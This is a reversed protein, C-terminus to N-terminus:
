RRQHPNSQKLRPLKERKQALWTALDKPHGDSEKPVSFGLDEWAAALFEAFQGTRARSPEVRQYHWYLDVMLEVFHRALPDSRSPPSKVIKLQQVSAGWERIDRVSEIFRVFSAASSPLIDSGEREIGPIFAAPDAEDPKDSIWRTIRSIKAATAQLRKAKRRARRVEELAYNARTRATRGARRIEQRLLGVAEKANKGFFLEAHVENISSQAM